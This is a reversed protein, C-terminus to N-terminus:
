LSTPLLVIERRDQSFSLSRNRASIPVTRERERPSLGEGAEPLHKPSCSLPWTHGETKFCSSVSRRALFIEEEMHRDEQTHVLPTSPLASHMIGTGLSSSTQLFKCVDRIIYIACHCQNHSIVQGAQFIVSNTANLSM